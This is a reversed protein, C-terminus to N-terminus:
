QEANQHHCGESGFRGQSNINAIGGFGCPEEAGIWFCSPAIRWIELRRQDIRGAFFPANFRILRALPQNRCSEPALRLIRIRPSEKDKPSPMSMLSRKSTLISEKRGAVRTIFVPVM